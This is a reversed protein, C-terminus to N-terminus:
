LNCEALTALRKAIEHGSKSYIEFIKKERTWAFNSSCLLNSEEM